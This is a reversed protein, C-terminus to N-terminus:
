PTSTTAPCVGAVGSGSGSAGDRLVPPRLARVRIGTRRAGPGEVTTRRPWATSSTVSKRRDSAQYLARNPNMVESSIRSAGSIAM